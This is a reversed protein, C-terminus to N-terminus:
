ILPVPLNQSHCKLCSQYVWQLYIQFCLSVQVKAWILYFAVLGLWRPYQLATCGLSWLILGWLTVWESVGEMTDNVMIDQFGLSHINTTWIEGRIGCIKNNICVVLSTLGCGGMAGHTLIHLTTKKKKNKNQWKNFTSACMHWMVWSPWTSHVVGCWQFKTSQTMGYHWM